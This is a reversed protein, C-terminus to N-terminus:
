GSAPQQHGSDPRISSHRMQGHCQRDDHNAGCNQVCHKGRDGRVLVNRNAERCEGDSEKWGNILIELNSFDRYVKGPERAPARRGQLLEGYRPINQQCVTREEKEHQMLHSTGNVEDSRLMRLERALQLKKEICARSHDNLVGAVDGKLYRKKDTHEEQSAPYRYARRPLCRKNNDADGKCTM